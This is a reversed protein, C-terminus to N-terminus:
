FKYSVGITGTFEKFDVKSSTSNVVSTESGFDTYRLEGRVIWNDTYAYEVGGGITWGTRTNDSSSAFRGNPGTGNIDFKENAFAVGATIYPLIRDFAYGARARISGQWDSKFDGTQTFVAGNVSRNRSLDTYDIDGDLGIVYGGDFQYNYGAHIGGLFGTSGFGRSSGTAFNSADVDSNAFGLHLGTYFGTWNYVPIVYPAPESPKLALDAAFVPATSLLIVGFAVCIKM